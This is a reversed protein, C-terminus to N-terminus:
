NVGEKEERRKKKQQQQWFSTQIPPGGKKETWTQVPPVSRLPSLSLWKPRNQIPLNGSASNKQRKESWGFSPILRHVGNEGFCKTHTEKTQKEV